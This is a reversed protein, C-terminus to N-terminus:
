WRRAHSNTEYLCIKIIIIVVHFTTRIEFMHIVSTMLTLYLCSECQVGYSDVVGHTAIHLLHFGIESIIYRIRATAM